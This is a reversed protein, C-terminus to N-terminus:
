LMLILFGSVACLRSKIVTPGDGKAEKNLELWFPENFTVFVVASRLIINKNSLFDYNM